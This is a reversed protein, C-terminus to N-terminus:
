GGVPRSTVTNSLEGVTAMCLPSLAVQRKSPLTVVVHDATRAAHAILGGGGPFKEVCHMVWGVPLAGLPHADGESGRVPVVPMAIDVPQVPYPAAGLRGPPSYQKLWSGFCYYCIEAL